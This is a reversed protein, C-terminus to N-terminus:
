NKTPMSVRNVFDPAALQGILAINGQNWCKETARRLPIKNTETSM